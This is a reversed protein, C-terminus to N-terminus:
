EREAYREWSPQPPLEVAHAASIIAGYSDPREIESQQQRPPQKKIEEDHNRPLVHVGDFGHVAPAKIQKVDAFFQHERRAQNQHPPPAASGPPADVKMQKYRRQQITDGREHGAFGDVQM